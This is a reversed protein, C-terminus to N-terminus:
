ILISCIEEINGNFDVKGAPVGRNLSYVPRINKIRGCGVRGGGANGAATRGPEM